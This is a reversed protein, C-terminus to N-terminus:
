AGGGEVPAAARASPRRMADLALSCGTAVVGVGVVALVSLFLPDGSQRYLAVFGILMGAPMFFGLPYMAVVRHRLTQAILAALALSMMGVWRPMGDGYDASSQLARLAATPAVALALGTVLLYGVVYWLCLRTRM